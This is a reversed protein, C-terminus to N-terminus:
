EGVDPPLVQVNSIKVLIDLDELEYSSGVVVVEHGRVPPPCVDDFAAGKLRLNQIMEVVGGIQPHLSDLSIEQQPLTKNFLMRALPPDDPFHFNVIWLM